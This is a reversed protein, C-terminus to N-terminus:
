YKMGTYWVKKGELLEDLQKPFLDKDLPKAIFGDFGLEQARQIAQTPESASIAVIPVLKYAEMQRVQEFISFGSDGRPLMLDLIILDYNTQSLKQVTDRGIRDFEIVAGVKKLIMTYVVRNMTDDEVIFIKKDKLM